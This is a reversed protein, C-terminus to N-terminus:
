LLITRMYNELKVRKSLRSAPFHSFESTSPVIVGSSSMILGSSIRELRIFIGSGQLYWETRNQEDGECM